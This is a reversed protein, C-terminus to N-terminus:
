FNKARVGPPYYLPPSSSIYGPSIGAKLKFEKLLSLMVKSKNPGNTIETYLDKSDSVYSLGEVWKRYLKLLANKIHPLPMDKILIMEGKSESYYYQDNDKIDYGLKIAAEQVQNMPGELVLGNPLVIKLKEKAGKSEKEVKVLRAVRVVPVM